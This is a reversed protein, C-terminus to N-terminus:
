LLLTMIKNQKLQLLSRALIESKNQNVFQGLGIYAAYDEPYKLASKIGIITGWSHCVLLIKKAHFEKKLYQTVQHADEVYLDPTLIASSDTKSRGCNRQDWSVLVFDKTLEQNYKRIMPTAPWSPGGHVFLLVPNARSVGKIELYQNVGNIKILFTTDIPTHAAKTKSSQTWGFSVSSFFFIIMIIICSLV